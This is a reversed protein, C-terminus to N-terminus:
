PLDIEGADIEAIQKLGNVAYEAVVTGNGAYIVLTDDNKRVVCRTAGPLTGIQLLQLGESTQLWIEGDRATAQVKVSSRSSKLSTPPLELQATHNQLTEGADAVLSGDRWGFRECPTATKELFVEWDVTRGGGAVLSVGGQIPRLGRITTEGDPRSITLFIKEQNRDAFIRSFEMGDTLQRLVEGDFSYQRVFYGGKLGAIAMRGVIWFSRGVGASLSVIEAEENLLVQEFDNGRRLWMGRGDSAALAEDNADLLRFAAPAPVDGMRVPSGEMRYVGLEKGAEFTRALFLRGKWQAAADVNGTDPLVKEEGSFDIVRMEGGRSFFALGEGSGVPNAQGSIERIEKLGAQEDYSCVVTVVEGSPARREGAVILVEGESRVLRSISATAGEESEVWDNFHFAEGESTFGVLYGRVFYKGPGLEKGGDDRGDWTAILGNLGITFDAESASVALNRVLKGSQDYVGLSIRGEM